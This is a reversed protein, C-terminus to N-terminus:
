PIVKQTTQKGMFCTVRYQSAKHTRLVDAAVHHVWVCALNHERNPNMVSEM